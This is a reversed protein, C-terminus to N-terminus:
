TWVARYAEFFKLPFLLCPKYPSATSSISQLTPINCTRKIAASPILPFSINVLHLSRHNPYRCYIQSVQRKHKSSLFLQKFPVIIQGRTIDVKHGFKNHGVVAQERRQSNIYGIYYLRLPSVSVMVTSMQLLTTLDLEMLTQTSNPKQMNDEYLLIIIQFTVVNYQYWFM